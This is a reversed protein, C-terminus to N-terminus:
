GTQGSGSMGLLARQGIKRLMRLLELTVDFPRELAGLV